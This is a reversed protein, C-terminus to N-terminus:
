CGVNRFRVQSLSIVACIDSDNVQDQSARFRQQQFSILCRVHIAAERLAARRRSRMEEAAEALGDTKRRLAALEDGAGGDAGAECGSADRRTDTVLHSM